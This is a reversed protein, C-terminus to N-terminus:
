EKCFEDHCKQSETELTAHHINLHELDHKLESKIKAIEDDNMDDETILHATMANKTTSMAWVHIHHISKVGQATMMKDKIKEMEVNAPVADLTLKLSEKLLSWTSYIVVAMIILSILPDIWMIGTYSIIIGAIVVGVSVLADIALHMYAGRANLESDKDKFFFFASLANVFIGIGAVIAIVGGDTAVPHRLRQVAEWGISGVAILLVVANILSALITTKNYGYTFKETSRKKALHFALLSLGLGAVDSLNHGADSMLGVSNYWLGYGFEVLVYASNLIIGIRFAATVKKLKHTHDHHSHDGSM